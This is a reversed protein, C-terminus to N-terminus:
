RGSGLGLGTGISFDFNDTEDGAKENLPYALTFNLPGLATIWVVSFGFTARLEDAEFNSCIGQTPRCNTNFVNGIDLFLGSRLSRQDPVFPLPFLLELNLLTLLNGGFPEPEDSSFVQATQLQGDDDLIYILGSDDDTSDILETSYALAPTSRPGLTNGEYGRVTGQGGAFFHEFFPLGGEGSYSDGYGLRLRTRLTFNENIPFFTEYQYFLKYYEIDSGPLNIELSVRHSSGRTALQGRNLKFQEWGLLLQFSQFKNDHTDLFGAPVTRLQADTIAQLGSDVRIQRGVLDEGFLLPSGIIEQVPASGALIETIDFSLGLSIRTAEAIPYGFSIGAGVRQAAYRAINVEELNIDSYYLNVSRSIGGAAFHPNVVSINFQEQARNTQIQIGVSNGTGLFNRRQLGLQFISGYTDNYAISFILSGPFEEELEVLLDVEDTVGPVPEPEISVERFLGLRELRRRSQDIALRSAPANELQLMERRIVNDGTGANGSILIRRVYTRPGPILYFRLSIERSQDDTDPVSRVEADLYGANNVIQKIREESNKVRVESYLQDVAIPLSKLLLQEEIPLEGRVTIERITFKEDERVSIDIFVSSKDDSVSVQVALVEFRLYGRDRYYSALKELDNSFTERAYQSRKSFFAFRGAIRSEFTGLLEEDGFVTNGIINIQRIRAPTGEDITLKIKVRNRPMGIVETKVSSDYRGRSAYQRRLENKLTLLTARRLVQGTELGSSKFGELLDDDKIAKNGELEIESIFPREAVSIVLVEGDRDVRVDDFNGTAFLDHLLNQLEITSVRDGASFTLRSFIVGPSVRQLGEIRIDEIVFDVARSQESALLGGFLLLLLVTAAFGKNVPPMMRRIATTRGYPFKSRSAITKNGDVIDVILEHGPSYQVFQRFVFRNETGKVWVSLLM